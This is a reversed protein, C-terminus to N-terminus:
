YSYRMRWGGSLLNSPSAIMDRSFGLGTLIETAVVEANELNRNKLEDYIQQLKFIEQESADVIFM